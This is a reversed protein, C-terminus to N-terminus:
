EGGGERGLGGRQGGGGGAGWCQEGDRPLVPQNGHPAPVQGAKSAQAHPQSGTGSRHQSFQPSTPLSREQPAPSLGRRGPKVGVAAANLISTESHRIYLDPTPITLLRPSFSLCPTLSRLSCLDRCGLVPSEGSSPECYVLRNQVCSGRLGHLSDLQPKAGLFNVPNLDRRPSHHPSSYPQGLDGDGPGAAQRQAVPQGPLPAGEVAGIPLRVGIGAPLGAAPLTTSVTATDGKTGQTKDHACVAVATTPGGQAPRGAVPHRTRGAPLTGHGLRPFGAQKSGMRGLSVM